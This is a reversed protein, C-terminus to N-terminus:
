DTQRDKRRLDNVVALRRLLCVAGDQVGLPRREQRKTVGGKTGAGEVQGEQVAEIGDVLHLSSTMIIYHSLPQDHTAIYYQSYNIIYHHHLATRDM